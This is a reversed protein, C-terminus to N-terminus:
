ETEPPLIVIGVAMGAGGGEAAITQPPKGWARDLLAQACMAQVKPPGSRMLNALTEIAEQSHKRAAKRVLDLQQRETKRM